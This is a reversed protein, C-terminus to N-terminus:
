EGAAAPILLRGSSNLVITTSYEQRDGCASKLTTTQLRFKGTVALNQHSAHTATITLTHALSGDDSNLGDFLQVESDTLAICHQDICAQLEAAPHSAVWAKTNLAVYPPQMSAGACSVSGSCGAVLSLVAALLLLSGGLRPVAPQTRGM